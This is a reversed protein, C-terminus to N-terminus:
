GMCQGTRLSVKRLKAFRYGARETETAEPDTYIMGLEAPKTRLRCAFQTSVMSYISPIGISCMM